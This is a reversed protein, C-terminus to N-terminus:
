FLCALFVSCESMLLGIAAALDLGAAVAEVQSGLGRKASTKKSSSVLLLLRAQTGCRFQQLYLETHTFREGTRPNGVGGGGKGSMRM